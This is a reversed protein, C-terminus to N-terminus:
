AFRGWRLPEVAPISSVVDIWGWKLYSLKNEAMYLKVFFDTMFVVCILTDVSELIAVVGPDLRLFTTAALSGLVYVCLGLMFLEYVELSRFVM